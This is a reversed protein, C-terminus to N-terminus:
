VNYKKGGFVIILILVLLFVFNLNNSPMILPSSCSHAEEKRGFRALERIQRVGWCRLIDLWVLWVMSYGVISYWVMSCRLIGYWLTGYWVTSYVVMGYLLLSYWVLGFLIASYWVMSFLVTDRVDVGSKGSEWLEESNNIMILRQLDRDEFYIWDWNQLVKSNNLFQGWPSLEWVRSLPPTKNSWMYWNFEPPSTPM